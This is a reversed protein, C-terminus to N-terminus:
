KEKENESMSKALLIIDDFQVRSEMAPGASQRHLDQIKRCGGASAPKLEHGGETAAPRIRLYM